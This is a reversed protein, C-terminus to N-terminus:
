GIRRTLGISRQVTPLDFSDAYVLRERLTTLGAPPALHLMSPSRSRTHGLPEDTDDDAWQLEVERVMIRRRQGARGDPVPVVGTWHVDALSAAQTPVLEVEAGTDQWGLDPDSGSGLVQVRASLRHSELVGPGSPHPGTIREAAWTLGAPGHVEVHVSGAQTSFTATRPPVLQIFDTTRVRSIEAGDISHPQYRCLGLRVFPLYSSGADLQIDCFWLGRDPDFRPTHGVVTVTDNATEALALGTGVATRLPMQHIYPGHAVPASDRIPDAGWRTVLTDPDPGLHLFGWVLDGVLDLNAAARGFTARALDPSVDVDGLGVTALLEESGPLGRAATTVGRRGAARRVVGAAALDAAKRATLPVTMGAALDLPWTFWPQDAIVVGLLEGDGSSFWPRRLYVRLGGVRTRSLPRPLPRHGPLALAPPLEETRWDFTPVVYAVEPPEPRRSSPVHRSVAPGARTVLSAGTGDVGDVIAPPFYERFRTTATATYDVLRHKTDGLEHRLRHVPGQGGGAPADDRGTRCHNEDPELNLDGVHAHASRLGRGDVGDLPADMALDDVQEHWVADVDLRGTSKAHNDIAGDLVCLTEGADRVMGAPPVAVQPDTLPKEVAHVLTLTVPPTTLWMRGQLAQGRDNADMVNEVLSWVGQIDLDTDDLYSSLSVRVVEAQPLHVNLVRATPDWQPSQPTGGPSVPAPAPGDHIRLLFPQRDWWAGEGEVPWPQLWTQAPGAPLTTLSAGRSSVDPLYPLELEAQPVVDPLAGAERSAVAFAEDRAAQSSGDGIAADFVGHQEAMQQSTKPAALWRDNTAQYGAAEQVRPLAVYDAVPIGATSRIVMRLQSEGESYPLRPLVAPSSVPEWRYFRQPASAHGDDALGPEISNGALDVLRARFRYETGYRLRPLTGPTAEFSTVLPLDADTALDTPPQELDEDPNVRGGPRQVVQSWGGWSFLAEHLYLESDDDPVETTSAAKVYGEDPPIDLPEDGHATQVRYTGTRAYLPRFRGDSGADVRYGRVVDEAFLDAPQGAKTLTDNALSHDLQEVVQAARDVRVITFGASRLAPLTTEDDSISPQTTALHDKLTGVTAALHAAKLVSGDIDIQHVEFWDHVNLRLQGRDLDGEGKRSRPVFYKGDLLYNLWPAAQPETMWPEPDGELVLRMRQPGDPLDDPLVLDVALGLMRMLTPYDGLAAVYAHFDYHPASPAPTVAHEDLMAPSTRVRRGHSFRDYFRYAQLYNLRRRLPGPVASRVLYRGRRGEIVNSVDVFFADLQRYPSDPGDLQRGLDGVDDALTAIPGTSAPPFAWPHQAAVQAYTSLVDQALEAAPFSRMTRESRDVFEHGEVGVADGFVLHWTDSSPPAVPDVREAPFIGVGDVEVQWALRSLTQPWDTFAPFARVSQFSQGPDPTLRPSVLVTARLRDDRRGDPLVTWLVSEAVM